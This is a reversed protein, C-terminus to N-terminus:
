NPHMVCTSRHGSSGEYPLPRGPRRRVRHSAAAARGAAGVLARGDWGAPAPPAGDHIIPAPASLWLSLDALCSGSCHSEGRHGGPVERRMIISLSRFATDRPHALAAPQRRRQLSPGFLGSSHRARVLPWVAPHRVLAVGNSVRERQPRGDDVPNTPPTDATWGGCHQLPSTQRCSVSVLTRTRTSGKEAGGLGRRSALSPIM